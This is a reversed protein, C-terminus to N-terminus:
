LCKYIVSAFFNIVDPGPTVPICIPKVTDSYDISSIKIIAVDYYAEDTVLTILSKVSM